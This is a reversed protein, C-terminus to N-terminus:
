GPAQQRASESDALLSRISIAFILFSLVQACVAALPVSYIGLAQWSLLCLSGYCIIFLLNVKLFLASKRAALGIAVFAFELAIVGIWAALALFVLQLIRVQEADVFDSGILALLWPLALYAAVISLSYLAAVRLMYNKQMARIATVRTERWLEGAEVQFVRQFPGVVVASIVQALRDAYYYIAVSGQPLFSLISNTIPSFLFNHLNHGIRMTFSNAYCDFAYRSLLACRRLFGLRWATIIGLVSALALGGLRAYALLRVDVEGGRWFWAFMCLAAVPILLEFLYTVSYRSEANLLRQVVFNAPFFLCTWLLIGLVEITLERRPADFGFAFILLLYERAAWLLLAVALSVCFCQLLVTAAFRRATDSSVARREQYFYLFQDVMMLQLLQLAAVIALAMFYADADGSAGFFKIILLSVALGAGVNLFSLYFYAPKYM